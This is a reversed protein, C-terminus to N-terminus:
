RRGGGWGSLVGEAHHLLNDRQAQDKGEEHTGASPAAPQRLQLARLRRRPHQVHRHLIRSKEPVDGRLSGM